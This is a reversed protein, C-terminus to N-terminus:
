ANCSWSAPRGLRMGVTAILVMTASSLPMLIAAVVPSLHGTAAFSLGIFNYLLSVGFSFRILRMAFRSYRLYAPLAPLSHAELIADSAPTFRLTDDTIALGVDAQKLAGADNLGDGIMLVRHGNAQLQSIFRLKDEPSCGFRMADETFWPSLDTHAASTDGSLLYLKPRGSDIGPTGSGQRTFATLMDALGDRLQGAFRFHGRYSGDISVHISTGVSEVPGRVFAASGVTVLRDDVLGALGQGPVETFDNIFLVPSDALHQSLQRSLPHASQSVLTRILTREANTLAPSFAETVAESAPTTLTGTKDFVLTDCQTLQEIVDANKLYFGHKSLLRLGHGLAVPYSLSLVCPCAIILIATFANVATAPQGVWFYWYAGILTALTLVTITFYKGVADAFTQARSPQDKRFADNNWLQTLYSQSVDRVIELDIVGGMQRGGAYLLTGPEKAEPESEGTVFSYDILGSGRYLLGDAPILDGHRIRIRDGKHLDAVPTALEQEQATLRQVALPFYSKYDREFSLFDYTRQQFWKGCLLFFILGSVSDYYGAGDLALVEYTGRSYATLIGLLIPFDINIIGRRLSKWVSVFYGSGSYFVVPTALLLNLIGFLHKFSPDDLGLYEPFSFLMINGACFGAVALRYLLPRYTPKSGQKVVDNLSILPEYGLSTLLEAVQRLSLDAPNYVLHVQKKLFDVRTQQVAPEIRYLHELLWLCSSCHIAPIYFTVHAVNDNQFDILQGAIDPLDLFALRDLAPTQGPTAQGPTQNLDYYQCLQHDSLLQYVTQCGSCCFPKDDFFLPATDAPCDSGCHYCVTKTPSTTIM